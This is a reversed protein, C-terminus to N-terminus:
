QYYVGSVRTGKSTIEKRQLARTKGNRCSRSPGMSTRKHSHILSRRWQRKWRRLHRMVVDEPSLSYGFTMPLLTQVLPHQPVTKIGIKTLYDTVLISNCLGPSIDSVRNSSTSAEQSPIEEQVGRLVEVYYEKHDTQGTPVWHMYIMSTSDFFPIM